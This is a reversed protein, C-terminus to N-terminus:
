HDEEELGPCNEKMDQADEYQTGCWFCYFHTSRLYNLLMNLRTRADKLIYMKVEGLVHEPWEAIPIPIMTRKLSSSSASGPDIEAEEDELDTTTVPQLADAQMQKKLQEEQSITGGVLLSTHSTLIQLLDSPFSEPDQPDLWYVNFKKLGTKEDLSICTQRAAHLRGEARKEEYEARTRERFSGQMQQDVSEKVLKALKATTSPSVDRKRKGVGARGSRIEVQIPEILHHSQRIETPNQVDVVVTQGQDSVGLSQGPKYGMKFMMAMAKNGNNTTTAGDIQTTNDNDHSTAREFLSKSLGERLSGEELERRSKKRNQVNKLESIRLAQRRREAYTLTSTTSSSAPAVAEALFKESLYDDDEEAGSM